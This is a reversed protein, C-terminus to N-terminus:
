RDGRDHDVADRADGAVAGEPFLRKLRALRNLPQLTKQTRTAPVLTAFPRGRKTILVSEGAHIWKSVTSFHNRLDATTASKM